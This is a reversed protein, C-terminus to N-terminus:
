ARGRKGSSEKLNVGCNPCNKTVMALGVKCRPCYVDSGPPYYAGEQVTAVPQRVDGGKDQKLPAESGQNIKKAIFFCDLAIISSVFVQLFILTPNDKYPAVVEELLDTQNRSRTLSQLFTQNSAALTLNASVNASQNDSANVTVNGAFFNTKPMFPSLILPVLFIVALGRWFQGVYFYGLPYIFFGLLAAVYPNKRAM